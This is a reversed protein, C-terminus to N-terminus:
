LNLIILMEILIKFSLLIIIFFLLLIFYVNWIKCHNYQMYINICQFSFNRDDEWIFECTSTIKANFALLVYYM